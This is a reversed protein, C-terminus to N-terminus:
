SFIPHRPLRHPIGSITLPHLPLIVAKDCKSSSIKLGGRKKNNMKQVIKCRDIKGGKGKDGKGNAGIGRRRSLDIQLYKNNRCKDIM